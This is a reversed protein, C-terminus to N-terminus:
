IDKRLEKQRKRRAELEKKMLDLAQPLGSNVYDDGHVYTRIGRKEHYFTCPSALGQQFGISKLHQSYADYWNQAADRTGYM